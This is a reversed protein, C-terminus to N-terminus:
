ARESLIGRNCAFRRFAERAQQATRDGKLAKRCVDLAAQYDMDPIGNWELLVDYAGSVSEIDRPLGIGMVVSVPRDFKFTTM